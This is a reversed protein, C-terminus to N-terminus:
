GTRPTSCCTATSIARRGVPSIPRDDLRPPRGVRAANDRVTQWNDRALYAPVARRHERDYGRGFAQWAFYNDELPFDCALRELRGRLLGAM